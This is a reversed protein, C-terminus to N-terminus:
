KLKKTDNEELKIIKTLRTAKIHGKVYMKNM